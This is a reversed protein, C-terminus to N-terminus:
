KKKKKKEREREDRMSVTEPLGIDQKGELMYAEWLGRGGDWTGTYPSFHEATIAVKIEPVQERVIPGQKSCKKFFAPTVM